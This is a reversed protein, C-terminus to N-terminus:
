APLLAHEGAVADVIARWGTLEAQGPKRAGFFQGIVSGATDLLEISTVPGDDTPKVVRWAEAIGTERLHLNFAPDLVNFWGGPSPRLRQVPGTHIQIASRNGVFIMVPLGVGAAARLAASAADPALRLALDDGGLALAQRRTAKHRRLLTVFDHTDRLARWDDRLATADVLGEEAPPILSPVTEPPAAIVPMAFEAVLAAWADRDTAEVAFIKHVAEGDRDFIQISPREGGLAFGYAWRGPFLRLDIDPGLVLIHGPGSSVDIFRGHREHVAHDNRTLAMIQGVRPMAGILAAWDPRLSIAGPDLAVLAAETTGLRAAADRIRLKPEANRLEAHRENLTM